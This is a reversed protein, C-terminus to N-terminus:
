VQQISFGYAALKLPNVVIHIERELSGVMTIRGVGKVTELPEKIRKKAIETIERMPLSGSLAISVVPASSLNIKEILPPQVGQPLERMVRNVADRVEQAAVDGNKELSFSVVVLSLGEFSTSRLDEIGSITNVAEEIPKTVSTEIEEPGAGPLTTSVTVYPFDINPFLDVGLRFYSFIGLVVLASVMMTAFVPRRISVDALKM